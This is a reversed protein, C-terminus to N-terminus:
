IRERFCNLGKKPYDKIAKIGFMRIIETGDIGTRFSVGQDGFVCM